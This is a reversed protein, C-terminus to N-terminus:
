DRAIPRKLYLEAAGAAVLEFGREGLQNLVLDVPGGFGEFEELGIAEWDGRDNPKLIVYQWKSDV